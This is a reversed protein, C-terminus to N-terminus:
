RATRTRRPGAAVKHSGDCWPARGSLGCRCLAVTARRRDVPQGQEDVIEVPGRVIFPGDECVTVRVPANEAATM